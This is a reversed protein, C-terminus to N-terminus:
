HIWVAAALLHSVPARFCRRICAFGWRAGSHDRELAHDFVLRAHAIEGPAIRFRCWGRGCWASFADEVGTQQESIKPPGQGHNPSPVPLQRHFNESPGEAIRENHWEASAKAAPM